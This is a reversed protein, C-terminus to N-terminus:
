KKLFEIHPCHLEKTMPHQAITLLVVACQKQHEHEQMQRSAENLELYETNRKGLFCMTGAFLSFLHLSVNVETRSLAINIM